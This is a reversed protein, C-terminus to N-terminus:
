QQAVLRAAVAEGRQWDTIFHYSDGRVLSTRWEVVRDGTRGLREICFAASSPEMGLAAYDVEAPVCASFREWGSTPRIGLQREMELYLSTHTWDVNSLAEGIDWPVWVSDIALPVSDALRIRHLHFLPEEAGLGLFGAASQNVTQGVSRVVSTQSMGAQEITDFLSYLHGLPQDVVTRLVTTGRGRERRVLGDAALQRIADRVTQRSVSYHDTLEKDSPFDDGFEGIELRRRLDSEIQAWLPM